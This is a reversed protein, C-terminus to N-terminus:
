NLRMKQEDTKLWIVISKLQLWDRIMDENLKLHGNALFHKKTKM